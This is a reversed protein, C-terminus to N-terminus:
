EDPHAKKWDQWTDDGEDKWTYQVKFDRCLRNLVPVPPSWATEIKVLLEGYIREPDSGTLYVVQYSNWKTGWNEISWTYWDLIPETRERLIGGGWRHYGYKAARRDAEEQTIAKIQEVDVHGKWIKKWEANREDVEEQTALVEPNAATEYIEKPMPIIANFDFDSKKTHLRKFLQKIKKEQKDYDSQEDDSYRSEIQIITTIHNPM